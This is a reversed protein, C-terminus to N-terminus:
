RILGYDRACFFGYFFGGFGAFLGSGLAGDHELDAAGEVGREHLGRLFVEGFVEFADDEV